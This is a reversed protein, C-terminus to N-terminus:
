ISLGSTSHRPVFDVDRDPFAAGENLVPEVPQVMADANEVTVERQHEVVPSEAIAEAELRASGNRPEGQGIHQVPQPRPAGSEVDAFLGQLPPPRSTM